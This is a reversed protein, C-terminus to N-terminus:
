NIKTKFYEINEDIQILHKTYKSIDELHSVMLVSLNRIEQSISVSQLQYERIIAVEAASTELIGRSQEEIMMLGAFRGNLEDISDQSATAFGKKTSSQDTTDKPNIGAAQYAKDRDAAMRDYLSQYWKRLEDAEWDELGDQMYDAFQKYWEESEDFYSGSSLSRSIAQKFMDDVSEIADKTGKQYDLLLSNLSSRVGDFSTATISERWQEQLKNIEEYDDIYNDLWETQDYKGTTRIKSWIDDLEQLQALEESTLKWLDSASKLKVDHGTNRKIIEEMRRYDESTLAENLYHTNSKHSAHYGMRAELMARNNESQQKMADLAEKYIATAQDGARDELRERLHDIASQLAENSATLRDVLKNVDKANGNGGLLGTLTLNGLGLKGFTVTDLIDRVGEFLSTGIQKIFEGSLINKLIGNVAQLITDILSSIITGIGEKLIDLISLVAGIIQMAFNGNAGFIQGLKETIKGGNLKQDLTAFAEWAGKLSGSTFGQLGEALGNLANYTKTAAETVDNQAKAAEASAKQVQTDAVGQKALEAEYEAKAANQTEKTGNALADQWKQYAQLTKKSQAEAADQAATLANQKEVFTNLLSGVKEVNIDKLKSTGYNKETENLAQIFAQQSEPSMAKFEDKTTFERMEKLTKELQDRLIIGFDGFVTTWDIGKRISEAQASAEAASQQRKATMVGVLDGQENAKRIKEAYELAIALKQEQFTGYEKLYDILAQRDQESQERLRRSHEVSAAEEQERLMKLEADTLDYTSDTVNGTFPKNKNAPNSEWLRKDEEFKAQRLDEYQRRLAEKRNEFDLEIQRVNKQSGEEMANIASQETESWLDHEQRTRERALDKQLRLYEQQQKINKAEETQQKAAARSLKGDPDGGLEKYTKKTAELNKAAEDWQEKTYAKRNKRMENLKQNAKNYATEADSYAKNLNVVDKTAKDAQEEEAGFREKVLKTQKQYAKENKSLADLWKQVKVHDADWGSGTYLVKRLAGVTQKSVTGTERLEKQVQKLYKTADAESTKNSLAKQLKEINKSYEDQYTDAAEKMAAEMGRALAAERAAKTVGKYAAEVNKLTRAEEDLNSLYDSFQNLINDKAEKYEDTGEKAKRLKNFLEDIKKQEAAINAQTDSFAKNLQNTAETAKDTKNSFLAIATVVASIAGIALGWPSAKFALNFAQQAATALGLEKRFMMVLRINEWLTAAKQAAAVALLVAKYSGYAAIVTLLVKAFEEYHHLAETALNVGKVLVDQQGEGIDNLMDEWAGQLNSLAGKMGKSQKDLMGYFKGGESTAARFADEVMEVSIAGKSMEDKLESMSKGTKESIILLPNFGANIMQLWDQGMLKGTSSMQAFALTLSNFKQSNGMSIDGIQKLIPMIKEAEINFGLLTQAGAALDKVLMPTSTAFQKIDEYLQKGVREGALTEFSIQLAEMEGRVSIIKKEFEVLTGVAFVTSVKQGLKNFANDIRNSQQEANEGVKRFANVAENIDKRFQELELRLGYYEKGDATNM